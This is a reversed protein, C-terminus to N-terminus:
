KANKLAKQYERAADQMEALLTRVNQLATTDVPGFAGGSLKRLVRGWDGSGQRGGADSEHVGFVEPFELELQRRCGRYWTVIALKQADDLHRLTAAFHEIRHENFPERQDGKWRPDSPSLGPVQARYLTALFLNLAAASQHKAWAQFYTDAFIFEGFLLNRFESGPGVWKTRARDYRRELVLVPLLQQTLGQEEDFLFDVAEYLQVCQVAPLDLLVSLNVGGLVSLLRLKTPLSSEPGYLIRLVDLLQLRTMENWTGPLQYRNGHVELTQM